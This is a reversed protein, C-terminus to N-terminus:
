ANAGHSRGDSEIQGDRLFIQRHAFEAIEPDHTVIIVTAGQEKAMVQLLDMAAQGSEADLAATPEDMIMLRANWYVARAIAVAQRQGGSMKEVLDGPRTESKMAAFLEAAGRKMARRDIVQFPGAYRCSEAHIVRAGAFRALPLLDIAILDMSQTPPSLPGWVIIEGLAVSGVRIPCVIHDIPGESGVVRM